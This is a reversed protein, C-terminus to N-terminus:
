SLLTIQQKAHFRGTRHNTLFAALVKCLGAEEEGVVCYCHLLSCYDLLLCQFPHLCPFLGSLFLFNLGHSLLSSLAPVPNKSCLPPPLPLGASDTVLM